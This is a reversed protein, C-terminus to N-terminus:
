TNSCLRDIALAINRITFVTYDYNEFIRFIDIHLIEELEFFVYLFFYSHILCDPGMLNADIDEIEINTIEYIIKKIIKITEM